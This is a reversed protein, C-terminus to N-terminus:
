TATLPVIEAMVKEKTRWLRAVTPPLGYRPPGASGPNLYLVGNHEEQYPRHTHGFIVVRIDAA